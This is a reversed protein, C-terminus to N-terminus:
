NRELRVVDGQHPAIERARDPARLDALKITGDPSSAYADAIAIIVASFEQASVRRDLNPDFRVPNALSDDRTPLSEAWAQQEFASLTGNGNADAADFAREIGFNREAVTVQGDRNADFSLLLGGGPVFRPANGGPVATKLTGQGPLRVIDSDNSQAVSPLACALFAALCVPLFQRM